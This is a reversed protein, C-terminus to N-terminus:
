YGTPSGPGNKMVPAARLRKTGSDSATPNAMTGHEDRRRGSLHTHINEIAVTSEDVLIGVALALGGLTMINVTQGALWLATTAAASVM